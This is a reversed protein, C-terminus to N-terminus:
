YVLRTRRQIIVLEILDKVFLVDVMTRQSLQSTRVRHKSSNEFRKRSTQKSNKNEKFKKENYAKKNDGM